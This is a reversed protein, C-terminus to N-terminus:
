KLSRTASAVIEGFADKGTNGQIQSDEDLTVNDDYGGAFSYYGWWTRPKQKSPAVKDLQRDALKRLNTNETNRLTVRFHSAASQKEGKRLAILGLNYHALPVYGESRSITQFEKEAQNLNGSKFYAVGLNYHLAPTDLGQRSAQKFYDIAQEYKNNEFAKTGMQFMEQASFDAQAAYTPQVLLLVILLVFGSAKNIKM